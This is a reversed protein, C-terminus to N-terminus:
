SVELAAAVIEEATIQNMCRFDIPCTRLFCPACPARAQVFRHRHDDPLGPGTLSASTSGFPVIVRSGVAAAVHMPGTDNTLVLRCSALGACLQRLSTRGALNVAQDPRAESTGRLARDIQGALDLDAKGGFILWRCARQNQIERAAAIFREVPWRKAPGYEAGPNLGFLPLAPRSELGFERRFDDRESQTVAIQPAVPTPNAGLRAALHLYQHLHHAAAPLSGARAQGAAGSGHGARTGSRTLELIERRSRKRMPVGGPRAPVPVTLLRDRLQGAHGIRHPVRGWWLELASRFSNPFILGVDFAHKRLRRGVAFASEGASFTLLGDIAPHGTWLDALKAPTLLTIAARPHAARLQLLAATTMVADGLWNVGRVLIREPSAPLPPLIPHM